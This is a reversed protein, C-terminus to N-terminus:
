PTRLLKDYYLSAEKNRNLNKCSNFYTYLFSNNNIHILLRNLIYHKEENNLNNFENSELADIKSTYPNNIYAILKSVEINVKGITLLQFFLETNNFLLETTSDLIIKNRQSSENREEWGFPTVNKIKGERYRTGFHHHYIMHNYIGNFVTHFQYNNSRLYKFIKNEGFQSAIVKTFHSCTDSIPFTPKTDFILNCNLVDNVSIGLFSPHIYPSIKQILEDRWNGVLKYEKLINLSFIDWGTYIPFSDTDFTFIIDSINNQINYNFLIQLPTRHVHYGNNFCEGFSFNYENNPDYTKLPSNIENLETIEKTRSIITKINKNNYDHNWLLIKYNKSITHKKLQDIFLKLWTQSGYNDKGNVILIAFDKV